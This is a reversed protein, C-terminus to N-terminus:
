FLNNLESISILKKNVFELIGRVSLEHGFGPRKTGDFSPNAKTHTPHHIFVTDTDIQDTVKEGQKSGQIFISAGVCFNPDNALNIAAQKDKVVYFSAVPGYLEEHWAAIDPKLGTLISTAPLDSSDMGKPKAKAFSDKLGDNKLKQTAKM